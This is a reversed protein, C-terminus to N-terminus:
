KNNSKGTLSIESILSQGDVTIKWIIMEVLIPTSKILQNSWSQRIKDKNSGVCYGATIHPSFGFEPRPFGLSCITQQIESQLRNLRSLDGGVGVWVALGDDTDFCGTQSLHLQFPKTKNIIKNIKDDLLHRASLLVTPDIDVDKIYRLTLHLRDPDIPRWDSLQIFQAVAEEISAVASQGVSISAHIKYLPQPYDFYQLQYGTRSSRNPMNNMNDVAGLKTM